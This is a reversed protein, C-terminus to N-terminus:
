CLEGSSSLDILMVKQYGGYLQGMTKLKLNPGGNHGVEVAQCGNEKDFGWSILKFM